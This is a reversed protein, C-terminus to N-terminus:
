GMIKQLAPGYTTEDSPGQTNGFHWSRLEPSSIHNKLHGRYSANRSEKGVAFKLWSVLGVPIVTNYYQSPQSETAKRVLLWAVGAYVVAWALMAVVMGFLLIVPWPILTEKMLCGKTTDNPIPLKTIGDSLTANEGQAAAMSTTMVNLGTELALGPNATLRPASVPGEYVANHIRLGWQDISDRPSATLLLWEIAPADLKCLFRFITKDELLDTKAGPLVRHYAMILDWTSTLSGNADTTENTSYIGFEREVFTGNDTTFGTFTAFPPRKDFEKAGYILGKRAMDRIVESTNVSFKYTIAEGLDQCRWTGHIDTREARYRVDSDISQYIGTVGGNLINADHARIVARSREEFPNSFIGRIDFSKDRSPIVWFSGSINLDCRGPIDIANVLGSTALDSVTMLAGTLVMAAFVGQLYLPSTRTVWLIRAADYASLWGTTSLVPVSAQRLHLLKPRLNCIQDGLFAVALPALTFYIRLIVRVISADFAVLVGSSSIDFLM